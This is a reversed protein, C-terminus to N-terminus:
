QLVTKIAAWMADSEEKNDALDLQDFRYPGTGGLSQDLVWDYISSLSVPDDYWVQYTKGNDQYNFFPVNMYNDRMVASSNRGENVISRIGAYSVETGAADSCNVGRFPM